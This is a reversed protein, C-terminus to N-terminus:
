QICKNSMRTIVVILSYNYKIYIISPSIYKDYVWVFYGYVYLLSRKPRTTQVHAELAQAGLEIGAPVSNFIQKPGPHTQVHMQSLRM